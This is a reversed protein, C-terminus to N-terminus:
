TAGSGVWPGPRPRWCVSMVRQTAAFKTASFAPEVVTKSRDFDDFHSFRTSCSTATSNDYCYPSRASTSSAKTPPSPSKTTATSTAATTPVLRQYTRPGLPPTPRHVRPRTEIGVGRGGHCVPTSPPPPSPRAPTARTSGYTATPRRSRNPRACRSPSHPGPGARRGPHRGRRRPCRCLRRPRPTHCRRNEERRRPRAARDGPVGQRLLGHGGRHATEALWLAHASRRRRHYPNPGLHRHPVLAPLTHARGVPVRHPRPASPTVRM